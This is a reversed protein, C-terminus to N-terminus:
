PPPPAPPDVPPDIRGVARIFDIVLAAPGGLVDGLNPDFGWRRRRAAEHAPCETPLHAASDPEGCAPCAADEALGLRHVVDRTLPSKVTRLQSLTCAEWRSLDHHGPTPAPHPHSARARADVMMGVRRGIASRASALDIPVDPQDAVAAEGALRDADENGDM